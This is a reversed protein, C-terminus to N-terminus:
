VDLNTDLFVRPCDLDRCSPSTAVYPCSWRVGPGYKMHIDVRGTKMDLDVADVLWPKSLGLIRSHMDTDKM